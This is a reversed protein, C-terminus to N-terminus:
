DQQLCEIAEATELIWRLGKHVILHDDANLVRISDSM